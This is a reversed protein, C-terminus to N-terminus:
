WIWWKVNELEFLAAETAILTADLSIIIQCDDLRVDISEKEIISTEQVVCDISVIQYFQM